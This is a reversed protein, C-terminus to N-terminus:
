SNGLKGTKLTALQRLKKVYNNTTKTYHLAIEYLSERLGGVGRDSDLQTILDSM